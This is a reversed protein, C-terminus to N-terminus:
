GDFSICVNSKGLFPYKQRGIGRKKNEIRQELPYIGGSFFQALRSKEKEAPSPYEGPKYPDQYEPHKALEWLLWTITSATTEHGALTLTAM